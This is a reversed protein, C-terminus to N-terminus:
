LPRGTLVSIHTHIQTKLTQITSHSLWAPLVATDHHCVGKLSFVFGKKKYCSAWHEPFAVSCVASVNYKFPVYNVGKGPANHLAACVQLRGRLRKEEM